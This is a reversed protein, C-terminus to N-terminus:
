LRMAMELDGALPVSVYSSASARMKNVFDACYRADDALVLAGPRLRSEV